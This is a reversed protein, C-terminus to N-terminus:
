LLTVHDLQPGDVRTGSVLVRAVETPRLPSSTTISVLAPPPSTTRTWAGRCPKRIRGAFPSLDFRHPFSPITVLGIMRGLTYVLASAEVKYNELDVLFAM